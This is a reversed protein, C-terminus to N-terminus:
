EARACRFGNAYKDFEEKAQEREDTMITFGRFGEASFFACYFPKTATEDYGFQLFKGDLFKVREYVTDKPNVRPTTEDVDQKQAYEMARQLLLQNHIEPLVTKWRPSQTPIAYLTSHASTRPVEVIDDPNLGRLTCLNRAAVEYQASNLKM